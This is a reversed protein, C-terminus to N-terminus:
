LFKFILVEGIGHVRDQSLVDFWKMKEVYKNYVSDVEEEASKDILGSEELLHPSLIPQPNENIGLDLEVPSFNSGGLYSVPPIMDVADVLLTNDVGDLNLEVDAYSSIFNGAPSLDGTTDVGCTPSPTSTSCDYRKQPLVLSPDEDSFLTETEGAIEKVEFISGVEYYAQTDLNGIQFQFANFYPTHTAYLVVQNQNSIDLPIENEVVEDLVHKGSGAVLTSSVLFIARNKLSIIISICFGSVCSIISYLFLILFFFWKQLLKIWLVIQCFCLFIPHIYFSLYFWKLFGEPIIIIEIILWCSALLSM